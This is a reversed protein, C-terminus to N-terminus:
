ARARRARGLRTARDPEWALEVFRPPQESGRSVGLLGGMGEARIAKEDLVTARLGAAAAVEAAREALVPPTLSGGPENVLDRALAVAEAVPAGREVAKQLRQGGRGVVVVEALQDGRDTTRFRDYRYTGAAM